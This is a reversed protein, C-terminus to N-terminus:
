QIESWKQYTDSLLDRLIVLYKVQHNIKEAPLTNDLLKRCFKIPKTEDLSILSGNIVLQNNIDPNTALSCGAGATYITKFSIIVADIRQVLPGINVNNKVVFVTGTTTSDYTYDGTFSLNGEIFVVGSVPTGYSAGGTLTVDGNIHVLSTENNVNNFPIYSHTGPYSERKVVTSTDKRQTYYLSKLSRYSPRKYSAFATKLDIICAGSSTSFKPGNTGSVIHPATVLGEARPPSSDVPACTETSQALSSKTAPLYIVLLLILLATLITFKKKM